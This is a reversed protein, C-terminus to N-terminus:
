NEEGCYPCKNEKRIPPLWYSDPVFYDKGCNKCTIYM